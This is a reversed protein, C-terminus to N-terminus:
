EYDVEMFEIRLKELINYYKTKITSEPMNLVESIEKFTAKEFFYLVLITREPESLSYVLTKLPIDQIKTDEIDIMLEYNKSQQKIEKLCNNILIRIIWTDFYEPQKCQKRNKYAQYITESLVDEVIADNLTYKYAIRILKEKKSM